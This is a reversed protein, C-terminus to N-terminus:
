GKVVRLSVTGSRSTLHVFYVGPSLEKGSITTTGSAAVTGAFHVKGLVDVLTWQAEPAAGEIHLEDAFPVPFARLALPSAVQDIAASGQITSVWQCVQAMCTDTTLPGWLAVSGCIDFYGDEAYTHIVPSGSATDGDGLDWHISSNMGSTVSQDFIAVTREYQVVGIAAHLLTDCPVDAPGLYVWNCATASCNATTVTLCAQYPGMGPYTHVPAAETSISGDGLDWTVSQVPEGSVTQDIFTISGDQVGITFTPQLGACIPDVPVLVLECHVSTCVAQQDDLVDARLCVLYDGQSPFTVQPQQAFDYQNLNEGLFAWETSLASTGVPLTPAFSYLYGGLDAHSFTATQLSDCPPAQAQLKSGPLVGSLVAFLLGPLIRDPRIM